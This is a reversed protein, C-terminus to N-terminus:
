STPHGLHRSLQLVDAETKSEGGGKFGETSGIKDPDACLGGPKECVILYGRSAHTSDDITAMANLLSKGDVWYPPYRMRAVDLVLVKGGNKADAGPPSYAGVPSFHAHGELGVSSRKFDVIIIDGSSTAATLDAYFEEPQIGLAHVLRVAVGFCELYSKAQDLTSGHKSLHELVADLGPTEGNAGVAARRACESEALLSTQNLYSGHLSPPSLANLVITATAIACSGRNIQTALHIALRWYPSDLTTDSKLLHSGDTSNLPILTSPLPLLQTTADSIHDANKEQYYQSHEQRFSSKISLSNSNLFKSAGLPMNQRIPARLAAQVGLIMMGLRAAAM